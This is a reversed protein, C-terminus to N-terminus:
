EIPTPRLDAGTVGGQELPLNSPHPAGRRYDPVRTTEQQMWIVSARVDPHARGDPKEAAFSHSFVGSEDPGLRSSVPVEGQWAAQGGVPITELQVRVSGVPNPTRNVVEGEVQWRGEGAPSVRLNNLVVGGGEQFGPPPGESADSADEEEDDGRVGSGRVHKVDRDSITPGVATEDGVTAADKLNRGTSLTEEPVEAPASEAAVAAEAARLADLNVDAVDYAVQRGDALELMLYSGTLRYSAAEIVTGDRLQVEVAAATGVVLFALTLILLARKM